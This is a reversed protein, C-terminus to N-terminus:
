GYSPHDTELIFRAMTVKFSASHECGSKSRDSFGISGIFHDNVWSLSLRQELLKYSLLITTVSGFHGSIEKM